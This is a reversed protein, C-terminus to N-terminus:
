REMQTVKIIRDTRGEWRGGVIVILIVRFVILALWLTTFRCRCAWSRKVKQVEILRLEMKTRTTRDSHETVAIVYIIRFFSLGSCM